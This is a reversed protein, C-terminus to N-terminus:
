KRIKRRASDYDYMKEQTKSSHTMKKMEFKLRLTVQIKGM